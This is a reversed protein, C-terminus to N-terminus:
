READARIRCDETPDFSNQNTWIRQHLVLVSHKRKDALCASDLFVVPKREGVKDIEFFVGSEKLRENDIL